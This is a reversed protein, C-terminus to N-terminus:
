GDSHTLERELHQPVFFMKNGHFQCEPVYLHIVSPPHVSCCIFIWWSNWNGLFAGYLPLSSSCAPLSQNARKSLTALSLMGSSTTNLSLNSHCGWVSLLDFWDIKFSILGSHERSASISFSFSWHGPERIRLASENSFVRISPFISPLLLLPRCLVLHNSPMVSEMSMFRLFNQSITFSLPAQCAKTWPTELLGVHGLLQVVVCCCCPNPWPFICLSPIVHPSLVQFLPVTHSISGQYM